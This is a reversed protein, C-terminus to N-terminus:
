TINAKKNSINKLLFTLYFPIKQLQNLINLNKKLYINKLKNNSFIIKNNLLFLLIMKKKKLLHFDNTYVLIISNQSKLFPFIKKILNKKLFKFNFNKFEKKITIIENLNLDNYRYFYIYQYNSFINTLENFQFNKKKQQIM